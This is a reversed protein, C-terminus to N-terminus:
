LASLNEPVHGFKRISEARTIAGSASTREIAESPALGYDAM